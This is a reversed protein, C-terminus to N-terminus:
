LGPRCERLFGPLAGGALHRSRCLAGRFLMLTLSQSLSFTIAFVPFSAIAIWTASQWYLDSIGAFDNRAFLRSAGPMYLFTFTEYVLM